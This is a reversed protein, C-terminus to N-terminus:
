DNKIFRFFKCEIKRHNLYVDVIVDGEPCETNNLEFSNWTNWSTSKPYFDFSSQKFLNGEDDLINIVMFCKDVYLNFWKIYVYLKDGDKIELESLNEVPNNDDDLSRTFFIKTKIREYDDDSLSYSKFKSVDGKKETTQCGVFMLLSALLMMVLLKKMEIEMKYIFGAAHARLKIKM